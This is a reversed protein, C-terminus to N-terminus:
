GTALGAKSVTSLTKARCAFCMPMMVLGGVMTGNTFVTQVVPSMTVADPLDTEPYSGGDIVLQDTCPACKM